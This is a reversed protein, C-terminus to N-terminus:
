RSNDYVGPKEPPTSNPTERFEKHMIRGGAYSVWAGAALAAFGLLLTAIGLWLASKPFKLPVLLAVLAMVGLTYFVYQAKVARQAHADLWAYATDDTQTEVRDFAKEGYQVVPWTMASCFLIIALATIQAPRSRVALAVILTLVGVALGEVPFGRLLEHVYEPRSLDDRITEFLSHTQL